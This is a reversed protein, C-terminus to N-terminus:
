RPADGPLAAPTQARALMRETFDIREELEGVRQHLADVEGLRQHLQEIEAHLAPDAAGKGDLRRALARMVPWLIVTTALLALFVIMVIAPPGGDNLFILNPDFPPSPPSPIQQIM